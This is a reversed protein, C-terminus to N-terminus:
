ERYVPLILHISQEETSEYIAPKRPESLKLSVTADELFKLPELLFNTNFYVLMKGGTPNSVPILEQFKGVQAAEASVFLHNGEVKLEVVPQNQSPDVFLVARELCRLLRTREIELELNIEKPIAREYPPFQAQLLRTNLRFRPSVFTATNEDWTIGLREEEGLLRMVESAAEVPVLAEGIPCCEVPLRALALRYTDTAVLTLQDDKIEFYVGAFAPRIEPTAAAYVVKRCTKKFSRGEVFFRPEVDKFTTEPFEEPSWTNLLSTVSEASVKVQQTAADWSLLVEDGPLRRILDAFHRALVVVRGESAVSAPVNVELTVELNTARLTLEEKKALLLVGALVPNPPKTPVFRAVANLASTLDKKKCAVEM